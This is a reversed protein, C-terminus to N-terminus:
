MAVPFDPFYKHKEFLPHAAASATAGLLLLSNSFEGKPVIQEEQWPFQQFLPFGSLTQFEDFNGFNWGLSQWLLENALLLFLPPQLLILM